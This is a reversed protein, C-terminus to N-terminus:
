KLLEPTEYINGIVERRQWFLPYGICDIGMDDSGLIEKMGVVEASDYRGHYPINSFRPSDAIIDGEYIKRGNRDKLSTYQMLVFEYLPKHWGEGDFVRVSMKGTKSSPAFDISVVDCMEKKEEDWARFKKKCM